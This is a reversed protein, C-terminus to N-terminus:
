DGIYIVTLLSYFFNQQSQRDIDFPPEPSAEATYGWFAFEGLNAYTLRQEVEEVLQQAADEESIDGTDLYNLFHVRIQYQRLLGERTDAEGGIARDGPTVVVHTFPTDSLDGRNM